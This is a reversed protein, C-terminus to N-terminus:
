VPGQGERLAGSPALPSESAAARIANRLSPNHQKIVEFADPVPKTDPGAQMAAMFDGRFRKRLFRYQPDLLEALYTM